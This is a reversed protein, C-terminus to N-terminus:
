LPEDEDSFISEGAAPSETSASAPGTTVAATGSGDYRALIAALQERADSPQSPIEVTDLQGQLYNEGMRPHVETKLKTMGIISEFTRGDGLKANGHLSQLLPPCRFLVNGAPDVVDIPRAPTGAIESWITLDAKGSTDRLIPLISSVFLAEPMKPVDEKAARTLDHMAELVEPPTEIPAIPTSM